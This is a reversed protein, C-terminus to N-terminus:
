LGDNFKSDTVLLRALRSITRILRPQSANDVAPTILRKTVSTLCIRLEHQTTGFLMKPVLGASCCNGHQNIEGANILRSSLNWDIRARNMHAEKETKAVIIADEAELHHLM